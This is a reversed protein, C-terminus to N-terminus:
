INKPDNYYELESGRISFQSWKKVNFSCLAAACTPFKSYPKSSIDCYIEKFSPNHGFIVIFNLNDLTNFIVNEVGSRGNAYIEKRIEIDTHNNLNEHMITATDIARKASSSIFKEPFINEDVLKRSIRKADLIGEETLSREHDPLIFNGHSSEAHRIFLIHKM